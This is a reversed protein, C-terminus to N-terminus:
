ADLRAYRIARGRKKAIVRRGADERAVVENQGDHLLSLVDLSESPELRRDLPEGTLLCWLTRLM